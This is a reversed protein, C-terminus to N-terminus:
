LMSVVAFDYESVDDNSELEPVLFKNSFEAGVALQQRRQDFCPWLMGLKLPLSAGVSTVDAPWLV